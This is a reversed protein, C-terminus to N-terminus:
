TIPKLDRAVAALILGLWDPIPSKGSEWNALSNRHVRYHSAAEIRSWDRSKRFEILTAPTM